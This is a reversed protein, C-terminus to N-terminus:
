IEKYKELEKIYSQAYDTLHSNKRYIYGITLIDEEKLKVSTLGPLISEEVSLMGSGISYGGLEAILEMSTARDDSKIMKPHDFNGLAEESLCFNESSAQEFTICPIDELQALSVENEGALPNDMWFYAFTEKKMLPVFDLNYNKLLSRIVGESSESYSLIGVESKMDRVDNLVEMTRTEHFSFVYKEPNYKRIMDTFAHVAFNYHQSSVSFHEKNMDNSLFREELIEYQSVAKKAYDIFEKGEESIRIGKNNREFICIGLETELENVSATLAPQTVYLRGAAERMSSCAAIMLVYKLQNITM